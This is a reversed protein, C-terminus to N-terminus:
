KAMVLGEETIRVTEPDVKLFGKLTEGALRKLEVTRASEGAAAAQRYSVSLFTGLGIMLEYFKQKDGAAARSLQPTNLNQQLALALRDLGRESPSEGDHYVLYTAGVFYAIAGAVDNVWGTTKGEEEYGRIGAELVQLIARQQQADRTLSRVLAPLLVRRPLPVFRTAPRPPTRSAAPAAAPKEGQLAARMQETSLQGLQADTYGRQKLMARYLSHSSMQNWFMTNVSASVPNNFTVGYLSKHQARAAGAPIACWIIIIGAMTRLM